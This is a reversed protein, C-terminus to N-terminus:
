SVRLPLQTKSILIPAIFPAGIARGFPDPLPRKFPKIEIVGRAAALCFRRTDLIPICDSKREASALVLSSAWAQVSLILRIAVTERAERVMRVSPFVQQSTSSAYSPYLPAAESVLLCRLSQM